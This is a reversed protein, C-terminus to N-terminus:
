PLLEVTILFQMLFNQRKKKKYNEINSNKNRKEAVIEKLVLKCKAPMRHAYEDYGKSVWAPMKTGVALLYIRM